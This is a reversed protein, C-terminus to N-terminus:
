PTYTILGTFTTVVWNGSLEVSPKLGTTTANFVSVTNISSGSPSLVASGPAATQLSWSGGTGQSTLIFQGTMANDSSGVVVLGSITGVVEYQSLNIPNPPVIWSWAVAGQIPASVENAPSVCEAAPDGSYVSVIPNPVDGIGTYTGYLNQAGEPGIANYPPNLDGDLGWNTGNYYMYIPSPRGLIEIEGYYIPTDGDNYFEGTNCLYGSAFGPLEVSVKEPYSFTRAGGGGGAAAGAAAAIPANSAQRQAAEKLAQARKQISQQRIQELLRQRQNM